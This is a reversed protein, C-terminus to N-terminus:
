VQDVTKIPPAHGYEADLSGRRVPANSRQGYNWQQQVCLAVAISTLITQICKTMFDSETINLILIVMWIAFPFINILTDQSPGKLILRVGNWLILMFAGFVIVCGIYGFQIFLDIYGNDVSFNSLDSALFAGFGGGLLTQGSAEFNQLVLPWIDERGTLDTHKGLVNVIVFDFLGFKYALGIGIIAAVCILLRSRRASRPSRAVFSGAYLCAPTAITLVIGTGSQTGILSAASAALSLLLLPTKFIATRYFLLLGTTLGAFVGLGQKHSFIGRWLGAHVTQYVDTAQHIGITPFLLVWIISLVCGLVMVRTCFRICEFRPMVGAVAIGLLACAMYTNAEHITAAPNRSWAASIFAAGILTLIPRCGLVLSRITPSSLITAFALVESGITAFKLASSGTWAGTQMNMALQLTFAPFNIVTCVVFLFRLWPSVPTTRSVQWPVGAAVRRIPSHVQVTM